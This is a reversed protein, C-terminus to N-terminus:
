GYFETMYYRSRGLHEDDHSSAKPKFRFLCLAPMTRGNRKWEASPLGSANLMQTLGVQGVQCIQRPKPLDNLERLRLTRMLLFSFVSTGAESHNLSENLHQIFLSEGLPRSTSVKTLTQLKIILHTFNFCGSRGYGRRDFSLCKPEGRLVQVQQSKM